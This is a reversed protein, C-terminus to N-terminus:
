YLLIMDCNKQAGLLMYKISFHKMEARKSDTAFYLINKVLIQLIM